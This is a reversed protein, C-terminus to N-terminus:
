WTDIAKQRSELESKAGDQFRELTAGALHLFAQNNSELAEASLARFTEALKEQAQNVAALKEESRGELEAKSAQLAAVDQRQRDSEAKLQDREKTLEAIKIEKGALRENLKNFEAALEAKARGYAGSTDARLMLWVALGGFVLGVALALFFTLQQEM